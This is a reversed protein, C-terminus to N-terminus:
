SETPETAPETATGTDASLMVTAFYKGYAGAQETGPIAFSLPLTYAPKPVPLGRYGIHRGGDGKWKRTESLLFM